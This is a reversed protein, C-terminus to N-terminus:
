GGLGIDDAIGAMADICTQIHADLEVGLEEAGQVIHERDVNRAFATAKMKKKVSKPTVDAVRKSPRVLTVATIMGCLEDVAFLTKAMLSERAVGTYPAHGLIARLIEEDYGRERLVEVGRYPHDEASPYKEYDFDHLLGVVGWAEEDEGYRRAYARMAAEVSLAHAILSPNTTWEHLLALASERGEHTM